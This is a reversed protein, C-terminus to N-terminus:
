KVRSLVELRNHDYKFASVLARLESSLVALDEAGQAVREGAEGVERMQGRVNDASEASSAVRSVVDQVAGSIAENSQPDSFKPAPTNTFEGRNRVLRAAEIISNPTRGSISHKSGPCTALPSRKMASLAM